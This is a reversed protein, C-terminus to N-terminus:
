ILVNTFLDDHMPKKKDVLWEIRLNPDARPEVQAELYVHQGETLKDYSKLHTTFVPPQQPATDVFMEPVKNMEAEKLQIKQWADPQLADGLINSRSKVKLAISSVAEGAKNIAKCMYVGSDNPVTSMIDLTVFGFDHTIRFRSGLKLEVGNVYWEFRLNPDGVPVVRAEYHAHQGEWLETPGTLLQTFFPKEFVRDPEDPRQAHPQELQQLKRISEPHQTDM